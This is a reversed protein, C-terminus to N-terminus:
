WQGVKMDCNGVAFKKSAESDLVVFGCDELLECVRQNDIAENPHKQQVNSEYKEPNWQLLFNHIAGVKHKPIVFWFERRLSDETNVSSSRVTDVKCCRKKKSLRVAMYYLSDQVTNKEAASFAQTSVLEHTPKFLNVMEDMSKASFFHKNKVAEERLKQAREKLSLLTALNQEKQTKPVFKDQSFTAEAHQSSSLLSSSMNAIGHPMAAVAGVATKAHSAAVKVSTQIGTQLTGAVAKSQSVVGQAVSKTGSVASHTMREAGSTVSGRLTNAHISLTRGLKSLPSFTLGSRANDLSTSPQSSSYQQKSGCKESIFTRNIEDGKRWLLMDCTFQKSDNSLDPCSHRCTQTINTATECLKNGKKGILSSKFNSGVNEIHVEQEGKRKIELYMDDFFIRPSQDVTNKYIDELNKSIKNVTEKNVPITSCESVCLSQHTLDYVEKDASPVNLVTVNKFMTVSMVEEMRAMMIYLDQGNETVLPHVADPDFMLANPTVLLTGTVTGDMETMQKVKLKIFRKMSDTDAEEVEVLDVKKSCSESASHKQLGTTSADSVTARRSCVQVAMGPGRQIRESSHSNSGSATIVQNTSYRNGSIVDDNEDVPCPVLLKQGPFVMRMALRNMKMLDGVTCDHAAAIREISDSQAVTYEMLLLKSDM